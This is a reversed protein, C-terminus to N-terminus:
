AYMSFLREYHYLIYVFDSAEIAMQAKIINSSMAIDDTADTWQRMVDALSNHIVFVSLFLFYIFLFFLYIFFLIFYFFIFIFFGLGGVGICHEELTGCVLIM